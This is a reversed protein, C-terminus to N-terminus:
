LNEFYNKIGREVAGVPNEKEADSPSLKAAPAAM